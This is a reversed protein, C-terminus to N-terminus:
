TPRIRAFVARKSVRYAPDGPRFYVVLRRGTRGWFPESIVQHYNSAIGAWGEVKALDVPDHVHSKEAGKPWRYPVSVVVDRGCVLLKKMFSAADPIHELVQLCLVIDYFRDPSWELFNTRIGRVRESNYPRNIDLSVRDQVWHLKELVPLRGSGVDLASQAERGLVRTMFDVVSYYVLDKRSNVRDDYPRGKGEKPLQPSSPATEIEGFIMQVEDFFDATREV